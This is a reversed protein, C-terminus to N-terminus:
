ELKDDFEETEELPMAENILEKHENRMFAINQSTKVIDNFRESDLKRMLLLKQEESMPKEEENDNFLAMDRINNDAGIELISMFIFPKVIEGLDPNCIGETFCKQMLAESITEASIGIELCDAIKQSTSEENIQRDLVDYLRKPDTELPPREYPRLGPTDTFSQGPIAKAFPDFSQSQQRITM